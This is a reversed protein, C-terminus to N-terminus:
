KIDIVAKIVGDRYGAVLEFAEATKELPFHHTLMFSLDIKRETFIDLASRMCNNQRRVNVITLEKRRAKDIAFSVRDFEPIGVLMLKGGPKLLEIAQDITEQVGACELVADMGAPQRSLIEGVVDSKNANVAWIAGAKKAAEVRSGIKDTAYIEDVGMLKASVMCSLGIPGSGLVAMAAGERLQAQKVAYYGISLPEALM